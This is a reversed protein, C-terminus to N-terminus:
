VDHTILAGVSQEKTGESRQEKTGLEQNEIRQERNENPVPRLIRVEVAQNLALRGATLRVGNVNQIKSKPNLLTITFRFGLITKARGAPKSGAVGREELAHEVESSCATMAVPLIVSGTYRESVANSHICM